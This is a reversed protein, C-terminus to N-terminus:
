LDADLINSEMAIIISIFQESFQVSIIGGTWILLSMNMGRM